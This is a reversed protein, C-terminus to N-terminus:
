TRSMAACVVVRTVTPSGEQLAELQPFRPPETEKLPVSSAPSVAKKVEESVREASSESLPSLSM